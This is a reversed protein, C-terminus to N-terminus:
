NGLMYNVNATNSDAAQGTGSYKEVNLLLCSKRFCCVFNILM